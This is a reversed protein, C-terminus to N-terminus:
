GTRSGKKEKELEGVKRKLLEIELKEARKELRKITEDADIELQTKRARFVVKNILILAFGGIFLLMGNTVGTETRSGMGGLGLLIMLCGIGWVFLARLVSIHGM